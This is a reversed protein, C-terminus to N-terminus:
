LGELQYPIQKFVAGEMKLRESSITCGEAYIVRLGDFSEAPAPLQVLTDPTLVNGVAECPRRGQDSSFLLYLAKRGQTGLYTSDGIANYPIPTGTEFFFIHAALDHFSVFPTIDGFENFLPAGLRCYRFGGGTGEVFKDGDGHAKYGTIVKSLRKATTGEAVSRDLEVLIFKRTTTEIKNLNM